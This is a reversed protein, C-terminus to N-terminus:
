PDHGRRKSSHTTNPLKRIYLKKQFTLNNQIFRVPIGFLKLGTHLFFRVLSALIVHIEQTRGPLSVNKSIDQFVSSIYRSIKHLSLVNTFNEIINFIKLSLVKVLM